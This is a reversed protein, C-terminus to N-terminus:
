DSPLVFLLVFATRLWEDLRKFLALQCVSKKLAVRQVSRDTGVDEKKVM